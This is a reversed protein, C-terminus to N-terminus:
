QSNDFDDQWSSPVIYLHEVIYISPFLSTFVNALRSPQRDNKCLITIGSKEGIKDGPYSTSPFSDVQIGYVHQYVHAENLAQFKTTRKMFQAVQPISFTLECRFTIWINDLLPADIHSVLDEIYEVSGEYRFSSLAPLVTRTPSPSRRVKQDIYSPEFGISLDELNALVGL